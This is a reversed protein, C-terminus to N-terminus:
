KFEEHKGDAAIKWQKNAALGKLEVAKGDKGPLTVRLDFTTAAGLGLQVPTGDPHAKETWFPRAGPKGLEGARFAEFRTDVGFPNPKDLRAYLKAYNGPATSATIFLKITGGSGICVDLMGDNNIDCIVIPNSDWGTTKLVCRFNGNGTNEYVEEQGARPVSLVLDWDGDNDLDAPTSRLMYAGVVGLFTKMDGPRLTYAGKGDNVYLGAGKGSAIIVDPAGDGTLDQIRIPAGASSLGLTETKDSLTGDENAVLYHGAIDAGYAGSIDVALDERGDANLDIGELYRVSLFRNKKDKKREEISERLAAPVKEAAPHQIKVTPNLKFDRASAEYIFEYRTGRHQALLDPTGDGNLDTVATAHAVPNFTFKALTFAKGEKNFFSRNKFEDSFGALDLWGDGDFDWAWPRDDAGPLLVDGTVEKTVNVFTLKGTEKLQNKLLV